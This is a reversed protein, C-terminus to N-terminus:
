AEIEELCYACNLGSDCKERDKQLGKVEDLNDCLCVKNILQITKFTDILHGRSPYKVSNIGIKKFYYVACLGCKLQAKSMYENSSQKKEQSETKLSFKRNCFVERKDSHFTFCYEEGFECKGTVAFCSLELNTNDRIEKIEKLSIYRPLTISKVYKFRKFFNVSYKNLCGSIVSVHIPKTIKWKEFQLILSIDGIIYGYPDFSEIKYVINKIDQIQEKAYSFDNLVIYTKKNQYKIYDIMEKLKKYDLFNDRWSTRKNLSIEWGYKNRWEAPVIGLFFETVGYKILEDIENFSINQSIGYLINM